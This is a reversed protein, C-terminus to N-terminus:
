LSAMTEALWQSVVDVLTDDLGTFFHDAGDTEAQRFKENQAVGAAAAKRETFGVVGPLDESGYLDLVPLTVRELTTANDHMTGPGGQMGILVLASVPTNPVDEMYRMTM